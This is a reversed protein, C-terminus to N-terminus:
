NDVQGDTDNDAKVSNTYRVTWINKLSRETWKDIKFRNKKNMPEDVM